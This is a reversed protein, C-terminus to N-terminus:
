QPSKKNNDFSPHRSTLFFLRFRNGLDMLLHCLFLCLCSSPASRGVIHLSSSIVITIIRAGTQSPRSCTVNAVELSRTGGAAFCLGFRNHVLIAKNLYWFAHSAGIRRSTTVLFTRSLLLSGKGGFLTVCLWGVLLCSLFHLPLQHNTIPMVVRVCSRFFHFFRHPNWGNSIDKRPHTWDWISYM